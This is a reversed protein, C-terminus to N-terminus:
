LFTVISLINPQAKTIFRQLFLTQLFFFFKSAKGFM